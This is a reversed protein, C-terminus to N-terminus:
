SFPDSHQMHTPSMRINNTSHESLMIKPTPSPSSPMPPSIAQPPSSIAPDPLSRAVSSSREDYDAIFSGLLMKYVDGLSPETDVIDPIGESELKNDLYELGWTAIPDDGFQVFQIGMSRSKINERDLGRWEDVFKKIAESVPELAWKGDTLVIITQKKAKNIGVDKLHKIYGDLLYGLLLSMDTKKGSVPLSDASKMAEKFKTATNKGDVKPSTPTRVTPGNKRPSLVANPRGSTHTLYLDMGNDDLNQAKRALVDVLETAQPWSGVMSGANDAVFIIDRHEFFEALFPDKKRNTTVMRSLRATFNRKEEAVQDELEQRAQFVDQPIHQRTTLTRGIHASIPRERLNMDQQYASAGLQSISSVSSLLGTSPPAPGLLSPTPGARFDHARSHSLSTSPWVPAVSAGGAYESRIRAMHVNYSKRYDRAARGQISGTEQSSPRPIGQSQLKENQTQVEKLAKQANPFAIFEDEELCSGIILSLQDCLDAASIRNEPNGLLMRKSVLDLVKPTITDSSPVYQRVATHWQDIAGLVDSGDHFYDAEPRTKDHRRYQPHHSQEGRPAALSAKIAIERLKEYVLIGQFGLAIWTAAVSFVCGLSWIDIAQPVPDGTDQSLDWEPAGGAIQTKNNPKKPLFKAFGPDSLKFSSQVRLINDPKIDAHWGDFQHGNKNTFNHMRRLADAVEFLEKWFIAVESKFVPPQREAFFDELDAEGWELLINTSMRGIYETTTDTREITAKDRISGSENFRRLGIDQEFQCSSDNPHSFDGLYKIMGDHERLAWFADCEDKFYAAHDDRFTKLVFQYCTGFKPDKFKSKASQERLSPGIFEEQVAIQWLLATGGKTSLIERRCIPLVTTRKCAITSSLDFTAPCFAWQREDFKGALITANDIGLQSLENELESLNIPLKRDILGQRQFKRILSPAGIDHLISFVLLCGSGPADIDSLSLSGAKNGQNSAELCLDAWSRDIHTSWKEKLWTRLEEVQIYPRGCGACKSCHPTVTLEKIKDHFIKAVESATYRPSHTPKQLHTPRASLAM